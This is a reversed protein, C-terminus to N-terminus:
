GVEPELRMVTSREITMETASFFNTVWPHQISVFVGLHNATSPVNNRETSPCWTGDYTGSGCGWKTADNLQGLATPSYRNCRTNSGDDQSATKCAAPVEGSGRADYIVVYNIRGVDAPDFVSTLALLAQQDALAEVSLHSGVRAGQRTSQTVTMSKSWALGIELMGLVIIVLVPVVMALEVLVAGRDSQQKRRVQNLRM